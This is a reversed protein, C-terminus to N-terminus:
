GKRKYTNGNYSLKNNDPSLTFAYESSGIITTIVIKGNKVTWDTKVGNCVRTGDARFEFDDGLIGVYSWSGVLDRADSRDDATANTVILLTTLM